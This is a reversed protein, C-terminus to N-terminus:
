SADIEGSWDLFAALGSLTVRIKGPKNSTVVLEGDDVTLPPHPTPGDIQAIAGVPIGHLVAEDGGTAQIARKNIVVPMPQRDVIEGDRVFKRHWSFDHLDFAHTMLLFLGPPVPIYEECEHETAQIQLIRGLADYHVFNKIM